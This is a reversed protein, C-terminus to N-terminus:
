FLDMVTIFQKCAVEGVEPVDKQSSVGLSQNNDEQYSANVHKIEKEKLMNIESVWGWM